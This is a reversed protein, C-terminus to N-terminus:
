IKFRKQQYKFVDEGELLQAKPNQRIFFEKKNYYCPENLSKDCNVVLIEKGDMNLLKFDIHTHRLKGIRETITDGFFLKFKDKSKHKEIEEELGTIEGDDNVGILLTGGDSNIFAVINKLSAKILADDRKNNSFSNFAFTKKFEVTKNEGENIIDIIKEEESVKNLATSFKKIEKSIQNVLKPNYALNTKLIVMEEILSHIKKSSEVIKKQLSIEPLFIVLSKLDQKSIFKITTGKEISKRYIKGKDTNFFYMAYENLVIKNNLKIKFLNHHKLKTNNLDVIVDSKGIKPMYIVNEDKESISMYEGSKVTSIEDSIAEINTKPYGSYDGKNVIQEEIELRHFGHFTGRDIWKGNTIDSNLNKTFNTFLENVNRENLSGIFLNPTKTKQFSFLFLDINTIGEWLGQNKIISNVYFGNQEICDLIKKNKAGWMMSAAALFFLTGDPKLKLLCKALHNIEHGTKLKNDFLFGDRAPMNLPLDAFIVDFKSNDVEIEYSYDSKIKEYGATFLHDSVHKFKPKHETELREIVPAYEYMLNIPRYVGFSNNNIFLQVYDSVLKSKLNQTEHWKM